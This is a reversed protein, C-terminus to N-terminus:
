RLGNISSFLSLNQNAFDIKIKLYSWKWRKKYKVFKDLFKIMCSKANWVCIENVEFRMVWSLILTWGYNLDDYLMFDVTKKTRVCHNCSRKVWRTLIFLYIFIYCNLQLFLFKMVHMPSITPVFLSLTLTHLLTVKMFTLHKSDWGGGEIQVSYFFLVSCHSVLFYSTIDSVIFSLSLFSNLSTFDKVLKHFTNHHDNM